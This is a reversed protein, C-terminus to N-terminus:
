ICWESRQQTIIKLKKKKLRIVHPQFLSCSLFGELPKLHIFEARTDRLTKLQVIPLKRM